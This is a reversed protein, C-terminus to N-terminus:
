SHTYIPESPGYGNIMQIKNLNLFDMLEWFFLLKTISIIEKLM